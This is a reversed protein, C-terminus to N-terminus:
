QEVQAPTPNEPQTTEDVTAPSAATDGNGEPNQDPTDGQVASNEETGTKGTDVPAADADSEGSMEPTVTEPSDSAPIPDNGTSETTTDETQGPKDAASQEQAPATETPAEEAPAPEDGTEPAAKDTEVPTVADPELPTEMVDTPAPAQEANPKEAGGSTTEVPMTEAPSQEPVQQEPTDSVAPTAVANSDIAEQEPVVEQLSEPATSNGVPASPEAPAAEEPVDVTAPTTGVTANEPTEPAAAAQGVEGQAPASEAGNEVGSAPLEQQPAQETAGETPVADAAAPQEMESGQEAADTAPAGGPAGEVVSSTSQSGTAEAGQGTTVPSQQPDGAPQAPTLPVPPAARKVVYHYSDITDIFGAHKESRAFEAPYLKALKGISKEVWSNYFGAYLLEINKKHVEIAKDEFPYAQDELALNYQELELDSLNTPRESNVLSRSFNYYIEAMYYTAAATVEAVQYDVLKSFANIATKMAKQKKQLNDRFPAVLEIEVFNTFLPEAIVLAAQSALYRTRDTRGEGANMDVTVITNLTARYNSDDHLLQYVGAMKNYIELAQEAPNPFFAVYHKYVTLEKQNSGTEHYLEAAIELAGRRVEEDKSEREIREYEAAALELKGASRYVFAIKKTVEPQLEHNPFNKRFALLVQAARDWDKLEILAAAGDYEATPRIKSTPALKGVRLFHEAATKYDNKLKAQEGQKYISAALNDTIKPREKDDVPMLDLVHLYGDEAVAYNALEFSSHAVVLWASRRLDKDADPYNDILKHATKFALEYNKMEYLDDAAAGLVITVKEHKPYTDAFKLSSRIIQQKVEARQGQPVVKLYERYAYVAAYGAESSKEHLPYNYATNEYAVAAEGFDKNELMLEAMQFNIGPSEKEHPFSTLYNQYWLLAEAYNKAKDKEFKKDQYLAHYYNALDKLNSKLYGIVDPRAKVDFHHWYEADLAYTKAFEKKSEVVLKGFGGEKYIEIVRMSFHPSVEHFPYLGVFTKYSKAADNYRRKTLYYDGLHSYVQNEYSRQGHRSFYDVVQDPGGLNSFSLSIARFTDEVRKSDAQKEKSDFDYGISLMYDFLAFYKNLAEEYMDQKYFTWGLKYMALPYYSSNPGIAAISQYADEADLFKKRTFYYEARRFQVEDMYRSSPYTKVFQNMVEMAKEIQGLEEYARSMQYLVQDNREYMPYKKLLKKYLAIAQEANANELDSGGEPVPAAFGKGAETDLKEGQGVRKEFDKDSETTAAAIKSSDTVSKQPTGSNLAAPKHADLARKDSIESPTKPQASKTEGEGVYGYEKEITLDAIRRMAEPTMASEPTQKLFERYSQIAKDLGADVKEDKLEVKVDRLEALTGRDNTMSCATLVVPLTIIALRIYRM